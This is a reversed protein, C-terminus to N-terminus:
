SLWTPVMTEFSLFSTKGRLSMFCYLIIVKRILCCFSKEFSKVSSIFGSQLDTRETLWEGHSLDLYPSLLSMSGPMWKCAEDAHAEVTGGLLHTWGQSMLNDRARPRGRSNSGLTFMSLSALLAWHRRLPRSHLKM